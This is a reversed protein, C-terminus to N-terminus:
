DGGNVLLSGPVEPAALGALLAVDPDPGVRATASARVHPLKMWAKTM